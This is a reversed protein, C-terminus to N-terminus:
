VGYDVVECDSKPPELRVPQDGIRENGSWVNNKMVKRDEPLLSDIPVRNGADSLVFDGHENTLFGNRYYLHYCKGDKGIFWKVSPNNPPLKIKQILTQSIVPM